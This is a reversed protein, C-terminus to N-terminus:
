GDPCLRSFGETKRPRKARWRDPYAFVGALLAKAYGSVQSQGKRVNYWAALAAALGLYSNKQ